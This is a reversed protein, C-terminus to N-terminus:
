PTVPYFISFAGFQSTNSVYSYDLTSCTGNNISKYFVQAYDTNPQPYWAIVADAVGGNGTFNQTFANGCGYAAADNWVNFPFGSLYINASYSGKNTLTTYGTLFVSQGIKVYHGEQISAAWSGATGSAGILSPTWTGEEYSDLIESSVAPANTQIQSFDIGPSNRLQITGNNTIRLRETPSSAGDATTYFMLRGPKDGAAHDADAAAVISASPNLDGDNSYFVIIGLEEDTTVAGGTSHQLAIRAGADTQQVVLKDDSNYAITTGVLLRGSSDIRAKETGATDFAIEHARIDLQNFVTAAANVANIQTVSSTTAGGTLSLSATGDTGIVHLPSAPSTTGIGVNGGSLIRVRENSGARLRMDDGVAGVM